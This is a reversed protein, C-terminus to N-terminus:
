ERYYTRKYADNDRRNTYNERNYFEQQFDQNNRKRLENQSRFHYSDQYQDIPMNTNINESFRESQSKMRQIALTELKNYFFNLRREYFDVKEKLFKWHSYYGIPLKSFDIKSTDQDFNDDEYHTPRGCNYDGSSHEEMPSPANRLYSESNPNNRDYFSNHVEFLTMNQNNRIEESNEYIKDEEFFTKFKKAREPPYLFSGLRKNVSDGHNLKKTSNQVQEIEAEQKSLKEAAKLHDNVIKKLDEKQSFREQSLGSETYINKLDEGFIVGILFKGFKHDTDSMNILHHILKQTLKNMKLYEKQINSM